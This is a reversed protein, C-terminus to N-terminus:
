GRVPPGADELLDLYDLMEDATMEGFKLFRVMGAADILYTTPLATVPYLDPLDLDEDLLVPIGDIGIQGLFDRIADGREGQNVALVVAGDDGQAQMFAQFAPLERVCPPCDTRWFNLFVPRGSFDSLRATSGDLTTLEFDQAQWDRLTRSPQVSPDDARVGGRDREIVLIVGAGILGLLGTILFLVLAPSVGGQPVPTETEDPAPNTHPDTM